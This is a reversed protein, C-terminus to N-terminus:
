KNFEKPNRIIKQSSTRPFPTDRFEIISVQKFTTTKKNLEAIYKKIEGESDDIGEMDAHEKNILIQAAIKNDKEYVVVEKVLSHNSIKAEIEEPSVNEGTSLIILNKKRGSIYLFDNQDLYGLDGTHFWGDILAEKTAKEDKYYGQMVIPGKVCIEGEKNSDPQDIKVEIGPIIRGVSEPVNTAEKNCSVLPSCETIGYGHLVEIGLDKFGYCYKESVPAGGVGFVSFRNGLISLYEKFMERKEKNSVNGKARNEEIMKKVEEEQGKDRINKWIANYFNEVLLPVVCVAEPNETQFDKYLWRLGQNIHLTRGSLLHPLIGCNLAYAHHFPLVIEADFYFKVYENDLVAVALFNKQSLVVGKSKGTTGSTFIIIAPADTDLPQTIGEDKGQDLLKKGEEIMKDIDELLYLKIGLLKGLEKAKEECSKAYFLAKCEARELMDKTIELELNRDIPVLVNNSCLISQMALVWPYSNEGMIAIHTRKYGEEYLLSGVAMYHNKFDIPMIETRINAAYDTYTFIAKDPRHEIRYDIMTRFDMTEYDTWENKIYAYTKRQEISVM